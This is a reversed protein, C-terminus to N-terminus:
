IKRAKRDASKEGLPSKARRNKDLLSRNSPVRTMEKIIKSEHKRMQNLLHTSYANVNSKAKRTNQVSTQPTQKPRTVGVQGIPGSSIHPGYKQLSSPKRDKLHRSYHERMAVINESTQFRHSDILSHKSDGRSLTSTVAVPNRLSYSVGSNAATTIITQRVGSTAPGKM